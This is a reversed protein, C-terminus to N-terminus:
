VSSTSRRSPLRCHVLLASSILAALSSLSFLSVSGSDEVSESLLLSFQEKADSASCSYLFVLNVGIFLYRIPSIIAKNPIRM